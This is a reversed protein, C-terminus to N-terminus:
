GRERVLTEVRNQILASVAKDTKQDNFYAPVEEMIISNVGSDMVMISNLSDVLNRYGQATEETMAPLKGDATYSSYYINNGDKPPNMATKIQAEFASKLVPIQGSYIDDSTQADKSLLSKIFAWCADINASESSISFSNTLSCLAGSSNASPYGVVSIPEGFLTTLENYSNPSAIYADVMAIEGNRALENPDVWNSGDDQVADDDSGYTKSFKMLDRFADSDFTVEGTKYNILSNMNGYLLYSLLNSQTMGNQNSMMEMDKPLSSAVKNFEDLTWGTRDGIVSKAGALGYIMFNTPIKYLKGDTECMKFISSIYDDKKFDSDKEMLSYIDVFMNKAELSASNEYLGYLIDPGTGNLIDLNMASYMESQIKMYDENTQAQSYDIDKEYDRVEIRYKTSEKNFNYIAESLQMNYSIGVGGLVIIQKGANPNSSERTLLSATTTSAGSGPEYATSIMLLKDKTLVYFQYSCYNGNTQIDAQDFSFVDTKKNATMDVKYVGYTDSMYLGDLGAYINGSNFASMDIADGLKKSSALIEFFKHKYNDKEDYGDCYIKDAAKYLSGNISANSIEFIKKGDKDTVLICGTDKYGSFYMNGDDGFVMMNPYFNDDFTLKKPSGVAKGSPDLTVLEFLSAGTDMDYTNVLVVLNGDKDASLTMIYGNADVSGSIDTTSELAGETNYLLVYFKSYGNSADGVPATEVTVTDAAQTDGAATEDPVTTEDPAATEDAATTEEAATEVVATDGEKYLIPGGNGDTQPYYSVNLLVAVKDGCPTVSQVYSTEGEKAAYFDLTKTSFYTADAAITEAAKTDKGTSGGCGALSFSMALCLGTSVASRAIKQRNLRSFIPPNFQKNM